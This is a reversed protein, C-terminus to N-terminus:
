LLVAGSMLTLYDTLGLLRKSDVPYQEVERAQDEAISRRMVHVCPLTREGSVLLAYYRAVLESIPPIAGVGPRTFGAWVIEERYEPHFCHKYLNRVNRAELALPANWQELFPFSRTHTRPLSVSLVLATVAHVSSACPCLM